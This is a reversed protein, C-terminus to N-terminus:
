PNPHRDNLRGPSQNRAWGFPSGSKPAQRARFVAWRRSGIREAARRKAVAGQKVSQLHPLVFPNRHGDPRIRAWRLM